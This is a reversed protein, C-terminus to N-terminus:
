LQDIVGRVQQLNHAADRCGAESARLFASEAKYPEGAGAYAVGLTNLLVPEDASAVGELLEVAEAYHGAAMADLARDNLVAPEYPFCRAAAAMVEEYGPTGKGYSAAVKYMETLSLLDPRERVMRRAEEINFNRVNYEIRYENRRLAPYVENLLRQYIEAPQLRQFQLDCYDRNDPYREILELIWDRGLLEPYNGLERVLGEWDEGMWAVHLMDAEIADHRRIYDALAKARNESLTLNHAESGEPSAYGTIFIGTIKVDDNERVLRISNSVTDLEARNNKYDPRIRYSDQRFQLRATRTEARVKVPEPEPAITDLRYEPIFEPLVRPMLLAEAEGEGCNVCGYVQERMEIRGELMWRQYPLSAAYDYIQERGNRRRIIVQAEGDHYPPLEVSELRRARLYVNNRTKGDVVIPPFAAERSGDRSVLVPTLAMTHQTRLRMESLDVTMTLRVERAEKEVAGDRIEVAPLYTIEKGSKQAHAAASCCALMLLLTCYRYKM